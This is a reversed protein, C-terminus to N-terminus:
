EGQKQWNAPYDVPSYANNNVKSIYVADDFLVVEDMMYADHAGTPQVYPKPNDKNKTHKIAWLAPTQSPEWGDQSTHAQVCRYVQGDFKRIDNVAYDIGIDWNDVLDECDIIKTDDNAPLLQQWQKRLLRAQEVLSM